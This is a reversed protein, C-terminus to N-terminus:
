TRPPKAFLRRPPGGGWPSPAGYPTGQSPPPVPQAMGPQFLRPPGGYNGGPPSGNIPRPSVGVPPRPQSPPPVVRESERRQQEYYRNAGDRQERDNQEAQRRMRENRVTEPDYQRSDNRFRDAAENLREREMNAKHRRLAAPDVGPYQEMLDRIDAYPDADRRRGPPLVDGWPQGGAPQPRYGQTPVPPPPGPLEPSPMRGGADPGFDQRRPAPEGREFGGGFWWNNYANAYDRNTGPAFTTM